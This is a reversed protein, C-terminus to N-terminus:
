LEGLIADMVPQFPRLIAMSTVKMCVAQSSLFLYIVYLIYSM